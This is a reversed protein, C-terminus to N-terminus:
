HTVIRRHMLKNQTHFAGSYVQWSQFRHKPITINTGHWNTRTERGILEYGQSPPTDGLILAQGFGSTLM